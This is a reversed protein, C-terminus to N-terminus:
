GRAGREHAQQPVDHQQLHYRLEKLESIPIFPVLRLFLLYLFAFLCLTGFFIAGDILSPFYNRWSSPLFDREESTVILIFRELWMGINILISAAFLAPVSRRMRKSWFLQPVACNCFIMSWFFFAYFGFPRNYLHVYREYPNGSYWGAFIEIIYAYTVIWGTVLLM